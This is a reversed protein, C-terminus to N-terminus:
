RNMWINAATGKVDPSPPFSSSALACVRDFDLDSFDDLFLFDELNSFSFTVEEESADGFLVLSGAMLSLTLEEGEILFAEKM